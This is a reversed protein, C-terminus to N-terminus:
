IFLAGGPSLSPLIACWEKIIKKEYNREFFQKKEYLVQQNGLPDLEKTITTM